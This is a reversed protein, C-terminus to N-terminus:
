ALVGLLHDVAEGEMMVRGEAAYSGIHTTLLVNDLATLPGVYPEEGFADLAAGALHGSELSELLATEDVLGGRAANILFSGRKMTGLSGRHITPAGGPTYPLHLSVIDSERLLVDLGVAHGQPVAWPRHLDYGLVRCQFPVLLGAVCSGIRGCGIIGVTKGSLMGGMHRLWGGGRISADVRHIGRLLTLMLGLTLEATPVVPAEPTNTVEIGLEAAAVGDVSDLGIGCRSIVKLGAARKLVAGTLPEVGAIIGVPGHAIVLDRAEKETLRRGHPNLVVRYGAAELRALPARDYLGFSSPTVLITEM